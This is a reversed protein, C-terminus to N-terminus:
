IQLSFFFSLTLVVVQFLFNSLADQLPFVVGLHENAAKQNGLAHHPLVRNRNPNVSKIPLHFFHAIFIEVM